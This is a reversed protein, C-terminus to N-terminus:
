HIYDAVKYYRNFNSIEHFEIPMFLANYTNTTITYNEKVPVYTTSNGTLHTNSDGYGYASYGTLRGTGYINATSHTNASYNHYTTIPKNTTMTYDNSYTDGLGVIIVFYDFGMDQVHKAIDKMCKDYVSDRGVASSKCKAVFIRDGMENCVGRGFENCPVYKIDSFICGSLCFLLTFVLLRM